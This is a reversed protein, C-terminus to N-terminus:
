VKTTYGVWQKFWDWLPKGAAELESFKDSMFIEHYFGRLVYYPLGLLTLPNKGLRKLSLNFLDRYSKPMERVEIGLWMAVRLRWKLLNKKRKTLVGDQNWKDIMRLRYNFDLGAMGWEDFETKGLPEIEQRFVRRGLEDYVYGDKGLRFGMKIAREKEETLIQGNEDLWRWQELGLEGNRKRYVVRKIRWGGGSQEDYIAASNEGWNRGVKNGLGIKGIIFETGQSILGPTVRRGMTIVISGFGERSAGCYKWYDAKDTHRLSTFDVVKIWAYNEKFLKWGKEWKMKNGGVEVGLAKLVAQWNFNSGLQKKMKEMFEKDGLLEQVAEWRRLEPSVEDTLSVKELFRFFKVQEEGSLGAKTLKEEFVNLLNKFKWGPLSRFGLDFVEAFVAFRPNVKVMYEMQGYGHAKRMDNLMLRWDRGGELAVSRMTLHEFSIASGVMWKFWGENFVDMEGRLDTKPVTEILENWNEGKLGFRKGIKEILEEEGEKVKFVLGGKDNIEYKFGMKKAVLAFMFQRQALEVKEPTKAGLIRGLWIDSSGEPWEELAMVVERTSIEQGEIGVIKLDIKMDLLDDYAEYWTWKGIRALDDLVGVGPMSLQVDHWLLRVAIENRVKPDTMTGLLAYLRWVIERNQDSRSLEGTRMVQTMLERAKVEKEEESLRSVENYIGRYFGSTEDIGQFMSKWGGERGLSRADVMKTKLLRRRAEIMEEQEKSSLGEWYEIFSRREEDTMSRWEGESFPVEEGTERDKWLEVERGRGALKEAKAKLYKKQKEVVKLVRESEKFRKKMEEWVSKAEEENLELLKQLIKEGRLEELSEEDLGKMLKLLQKLRAERGGYFEVTMGEWVKIEVGGEDNLSDGLGVEIVRQDLRDEVAELYRRLQRLRKEREDAPLRDLEAVLKDWVADGNDERVLLRLEKKLRGDVRELDAEELHSSQTGEQELKAVLSDLNDLESKTLSEDLDQITEWMQKRDERVRERMGELRKESDEENFELLGEGEGNKVEEVWDDGMVEKVKEEGVEDLWGRLMVLAEQKAKKDEGSLGREIQRAKEKIDVEAAELSGKVQELIVQLQKIEKQSGGGKELEKVKEQLEKLDKEKAEGIKALRLLKYLRIIFNIKGKEKDKENEGGRKREKVEPGKPEEEKVM